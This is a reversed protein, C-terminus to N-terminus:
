DRARDREGSRVGARRRRVRDQPAGAERLEEACGRSAGARARPLSRGAASRRALLPHVDPDRHRRGGPRLDLRLNRLMHLVCAGKQYIVLSYDSPDGTQAVRWGLGTPPATNRRALIDRRRYRLQKFFKDNDKLITQMYWLGSFETFGESLWVDRYGEPEVGIGWWQHAMEHARFTEEAGSESISQFTMMSLYMLGPFAQGYPFPIETANYREFLPPGFVHTFFALSNAVDGGVDKETEL